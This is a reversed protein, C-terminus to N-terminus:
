PSPEGRENVLYNAHMNPFSQLLPSTLRINSPYRPCDHGDQGKRRPKLVNCYKTCWKEGEYCIFVLSRSSPHLMVSWANDTHRCFRGERVCSNNASRLIIVRRGDASTRALKFDSWVKRRLSQQARVESPPILDRRRRPFRRRIPHGQRSM